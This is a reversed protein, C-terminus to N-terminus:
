SKSHDAPESKGPYHAGRRLSMGTVLVSVGAVALCTLWEPLLADGTAPLPAKTGATRTAAGGRRTQTQAKATVAKEQAAFAPNAFVARYTVAGAALRVATTRVTETEVHTADRTCVRTATVTSNDDSWVYAVASWDHGLAPDIVTERSLEEDCEECYLVEDHSGTNTCTSPVVNEYSTVGGDHDHAAVATRLAVEGQDNLFVELSDDDSYFHLSPDDSNNAGYGSTLSTTPLPTGGFRHLGILTAEDGTLTGTISIPKNGPRGNGWIYLNCEDGDITNGAVAVSGSMRLDTSGTCFIGAANAGSASATNSMVSANTIAVACSGEIYIGGGTGAQNYQISTLRSASGLTVDGYPAEVCLGGGYLSAVNRMITCGDVSLHQRPSWSTGQGMLWFIGAGSTASNGIIRCTTLTVSGRENLVGGGVGNQADIWGSGGTCTNNSIQCGIATVVGQNNYIGGGKPSYNAKVGSVENKAINCGNMTLTGVNYIGGGRAAKNGTVAAGTLTLAGANYIGGGETADGGTIAGATNLDTITIKAGSAVYVVQGDEWGFGNDRILKHGNLDLTFTGRLELRKDITFDEGLRLVNEVGDQAPINAYRDAYNQLGSHQYVYIVNQKTEAAQLNAAPLDGADELDPGGDEDYAGQSGADDSGDGGAQLAGEGSVDGPEQSVAEAAGENEAEAWAFAPVMTVLAGMMALVVFLCHLRSPRWSTHEANGPM